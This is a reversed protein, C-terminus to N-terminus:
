EVHGVRLPDRGARKIRAGRRAPAVAAIVGVMVVLVLFAALQGVPVAFGLNWENALTHDALRVCRSAGVTSAIRWAAPSRSPEGESARGRNTRSSPLAASTQRRAWSSSSRGSRSPSRKTSRTERQFASLSREADDVTEGAVDSGGGVGVEDIRPGGDLRDGVIGLAGLHEGLRASL